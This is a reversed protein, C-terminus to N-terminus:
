GLDISLGHYTDSETLIHTQTHTHRKETRILDASRRVIYAGSIDTKLRTMRGMSFPRVLNPNFPRNESIDVFRHLQGCKSTMTCGSPSQKLQKVLLHSLKRMIYLQTM